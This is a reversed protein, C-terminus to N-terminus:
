RRNKVQCLRNCRPCRGNRSRRRLVFACHCDPCQLLSEESLRWPRRSESFWQQALLLAAGALLLCLYVLMATVLDFGM